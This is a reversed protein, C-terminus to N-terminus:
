GGLSSSVSCQTFPVEWPVKVRAVRKMEVVNRRFTTKYANHPFVTKGAAERKYNGKRRRKYM